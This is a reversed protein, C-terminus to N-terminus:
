FVLGLSGGVVYEQQKSFENVLTFGCHFGFFFQGIRFKMGPQIQLRYLRTMDLTSYLNRKQFAVGQLLTTYVSWKFEEKNIIYIGGGIGLRLRNLSGYFRADGSQEELKYISNQPGLTLEGFVRKNGIRAMIDFAILGVAEKKSFSEHEVQCQLGMRITQSRLTYVGSLLFVVFLFLLKQM